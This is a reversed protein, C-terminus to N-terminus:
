WLILKWNRMKKLFAFIKTITFCKYHLSDMFTLISVKGITNYSCSTFFICTLNIKTHSFFCIVNSLYVFLDCQVVKVGHCCLATFWLVVTFFLSKFM